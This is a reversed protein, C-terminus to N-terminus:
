HLYANASTMWTTTIEDYGLEQPTLANANSLHQINTLDTAMAVFTHKAGYSWKVLLYNKLFLSAYLALKLRINHKSQNNEILKIGQYEGVPL